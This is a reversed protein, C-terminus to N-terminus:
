PLSRKSMIVKKYRLSIFPEHTRDEGHSMNSSPVSGDTVCPDAAIRMVLEVFRGVNKNMMPENFVEHPKVYEVPGLTFDQTKLAALKREVVGMEIRMKSKVEGNQEGHDFRKCDDHTPKPYQAPIVDQAPKFDSASKSDQKPKFDLSPKYDTLPKAKSKRHSRLILKSPAYHCHLSFSAPSLCSACPVYSASVTLLLINRLLRNTLLHVRNPPLGHLKRM